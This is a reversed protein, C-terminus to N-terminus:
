KVLSSVLTLDLVKMLSGNICQRGLYLWWGGLSTPVVPHNTHTNHSHTHIYIYIYINVSNTKERDRWHICM